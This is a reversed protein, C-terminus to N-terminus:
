RFLYLNICINYQDASQYDEHTVVIVDVKASSSLKKANILITLKSTTLAILLIIKIVHM